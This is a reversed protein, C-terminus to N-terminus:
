RKAGSARRPSLWADLAPSLANMALVAFPLAAPGALAAVAGAGFGSLARARADECATVPDILVFGAALCWRPDALLWAPQGSALLGLLAGALLGLAAQWRAIRLALLLLGGALWATTLASDAAAETAPASLLLQAFAVGAMAPHFRNAGLGGFAQRALVLAVFVSLALRWGTLLPLWLVILAAFAFASGELLFPALAQRRLRLALAEFLLAAAMAMGLNALLAFDGRWCQLVIGPLLAALLWLNRTALSRARHTSASADAANM